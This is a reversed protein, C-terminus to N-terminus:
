EFYSAVGHTAQETTFGEFELQDILGDRSFTQSDLYEGASVAAQEFWDAGLADVALTADETSFGEFELQDILGDRSFGAFALYDQATGVAQTQEFSLSSPEPVDAFAIGMAYEIEEATYGTFALQRETFGRNGTEAHKTAEQLARENWDIGLTDVAQEAEEQAFAESEVLQATLNLRSWPLQTVNELYTQASEAAQETWDVGLSDAATEADQPSAGGIEIREILAVRSLPEDALLDAATAKAEDLTLAVETATPNEEIMALQEPAEVNGASAQTAAQAAAVAPASALGQQGGGGASAIAGIGILGAVILGCFKVFGRDKAKDAESRGFMGASEQAVPPAMKRTKHSWSKSDWYREVGPQNPDPFWDQEVRNSDKNGFM